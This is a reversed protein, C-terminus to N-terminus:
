SLFATAARACTEEIVSRRLLSERWAAPIADYGYLAGALGGAVAAVTDTDDGLNVAKLVCDRYNETTLLCWIAAELTDVVYGSSKILVRPTGAFVPSFIRSYRTLEGYGALAEKARCLAPAIGDRGAGDQLLALLLFAYILCGVRSREHAHTLRSGNEIVERWEAFSMGKAHAYLVFPHIRMLSGNGNAFEGAEGCDVARMSNDHVFNSIAYLCTGGVDFMVDTATYAARDVWQTFRHMIEEYHLGCAALGDLAALSMSTDDSWTGKPMHHTGYGCMDTVPAMDLVSRHKFEAPVGVADAVAHGVMVSKLQWLLRDARKEEGNRQM